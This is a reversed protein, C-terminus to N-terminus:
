SCPVTIVTLRLFFIRYAPRDCPGHLTPDGTQRNSNVGICVLEGLGPATHNVIATAFAAFACPSALEGLAVNARRMWHARTAFPVGNIALTPDALTSQLRATTAPALGVLAVLFAALKM